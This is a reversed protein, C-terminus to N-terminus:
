TAPEYPAWALVSADWLGEGATAAGNLLRDIASLTEDYTPWAAALFRNAGVAINFQLRWSESPPVFPTPVVVNRRVQERALVGALHTALITFDTQHAIWALDFLDRYRDSEAGAVEEFMACAKDAIHQTVPYLAIAPLVIGPLIPKPVVLDAVVEPEVRRYGLDVMFDSTLKRGELWVGLRLRVTRAHTMVTVNRVKFVFGDNRVLVSADRLADEVERAVDDAGTWSAHFDFDATARSAGVRLALAQAGKITWRGPQHSECREWLRVGAIRRLLQKDAVGNSEAAAWLSETM